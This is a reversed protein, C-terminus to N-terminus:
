SVYHLDGGKRAEHPVGGKSLDKARLVAEENEKAQKELASFDISTNLLKATLALVARAANADLSLYGPTEALLCIAPIRKSKALGFIM